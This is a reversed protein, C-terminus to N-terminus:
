KVVALIDSQRVITLEEGELKVTTGTYKGTIVRDGAKFEMKTNRATKWAARDSEVVRLNVAKRAAIYPHHWGKNKRPRSRSSSWGEAFSLEM